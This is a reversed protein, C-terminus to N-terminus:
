NQPWQHGDKYPSFEMNQSDKCRCVCVFTALFMESTKLCVVFIPTPSVHSMKKKYHENELKFMILSPFIIFLYISNQFVFFFKMMFQM